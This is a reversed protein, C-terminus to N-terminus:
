EKTERAERLAEDIAENVEDESRGKLSERVPAFAKYLDRAWPSGKSKPTVKVPEVELRDGAVTISLMDDEDLGIAERLEKPITIQGHRLQKVVKRM